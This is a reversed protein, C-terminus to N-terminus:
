SQSVLMPILSECIWSISFFIEGDDTISRTWDTNPLASPTTDVSTKTIAITRNRPSSTVFNLL